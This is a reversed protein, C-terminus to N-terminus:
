LKSNIKRVNFYKRRERIKRPFNKNKVKRM